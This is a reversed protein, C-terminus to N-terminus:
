VNHMVKIYTTSSTVLLAWALVTMTHQLSQPASFATRHVESFRTLWHNLTDPMESVIENIMQMVTADFSCTCADSVCQLRMGPRFMVCSQAQLKDSASVARMNRVAFQEQVAFRVEMALAIADTDTPVYFVRELVQPKTLGASAQVLLADTDWYLQCLDLVPVIREASAVNTDTARKVM